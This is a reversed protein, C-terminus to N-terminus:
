MYKRVFYEEISWNGIDLKQKVGENLYRMLMQRLDLMDLFFAIEISGEDWFVFGSLGQELRRGILLINGDDVQNSFGCFSLVM